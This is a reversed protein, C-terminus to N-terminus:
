HDRGTVLGAVAILEAGAREEPASASLYSLAAAVLRDAEAVTAARGGAAEVLEAARALEPASLAREFGYLRALERGPRTDSALAVVVPLSKKRNRLDSYVPKGTVAPDGWIGLLDDILQFAVGLQEGFGRLAEVQDASGGGCLGGLAASCGLLAATKGRAMAVYEAASVEPRAEFALDASQGDLLDLVAARLRRGQELASPGSEAVLELALTLLGDGALIAEGVGFVTWATSRHRRTRDHDMVDDHLLSFNHVLEVAAAAGVAPRASGGVAEAALLVLAPRIAKGGSGSVPTGHEDEWGLHYAGVRRTSAPLTDIAARLAPDVLDRSWRLVEAVPRASTLM